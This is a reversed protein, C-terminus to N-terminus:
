GREIEYFIDDSESKQLKIFAGVSLTMTVGGTLSFNGGTAITSSNTASGGYITYIRGYESNDLDTIATAGKNASTVFKDGAAVDPTTDGDAIVIADSSIFVRGIEIFKGGLQKKLHLIDGVEPATIASSLLSFKGAKAITPANTANGWKIYIDQGVVADDIDTIALPASNAVTVLSTHNSVSPKADDADMPIFYSAPEDIDNCFIMQTSFDDPMEAASDFKKGTLYAWVSERWNSWVKLTWDKQEFNFRLMEGPQDELIIINRDLTWILRKSSGMNPIAQIKVTPYEKVYLIDPVYTEVLGYLSELNKHYDSLMSKSMYLILRGSDRLVEPIMQTYQYIYNAITSSTPEPLGSFPKVKFLAIQNKIFKLLGNSAQLATGPVNVTPNKRVGRLWRIEQENKLAKGTEVMVFEIFSWKMTSSGERNLYGLWNKELQKLNRFKHAFMVDYMKIKEPEFKYSGKVLNDFDSDITNDAQSFETLFMNVLVAEDQYGSELPFISNAITPLELLFSQIRDQKRVRYFEGLDAELSAYDLSSAEPVPYIVGRAAMMASYARMNYPHKGDIAMFPTNQGFLHTDNGSPVWPTKDDKKMTGPIISEAEPKASLVDIATKQTNIINLNAAAEEKLRANEAITTQLRTMQEKLEAMFAAEAAADPPKGEAEEQLLTFFQTTIKEGLFKVLTARQDESVMTKGDKDKAFAEISLIGLIIPMLRKLM